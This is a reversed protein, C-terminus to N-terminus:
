WPIFIRLAFGMTDSGRLKGGIENMFQSPFCNYINSFPYINGM